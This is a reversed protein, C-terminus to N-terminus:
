LPARAGLMYRLVDVVDFVLSVAISAVIVWLIRQPWVPLHGRRVQAILWVLLPGWIVLHPLGLLKVYGMADFMWGVGTGAVVSALATVIGILRSQPWILLVLPLAFASVLLWNVWINVWLPQAAIAEQLTM